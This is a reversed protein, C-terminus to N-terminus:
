EQDEKPVWNCFWGPSILHEWRTRALSEYGDSLLEGTGISKPEFGHAELVGRMFGQPDARFAAQEEDSLELEFVEAEVTVTENRRRLEVM